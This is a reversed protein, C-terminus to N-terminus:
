GVSRPMAECRCGHVRSFAFIEAKLDMQVIEKIAAEDVKSGAPRGAEIRHVGVEELAKAIRIKDEFPILRHCSSEGMEFTIDHIKIEKAPPFM